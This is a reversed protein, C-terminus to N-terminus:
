SEDLKQFRLKQKDTAAVNKMKNTHLINKDVVLVKIISKLEIERMM